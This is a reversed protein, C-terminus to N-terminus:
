EVIVKKVGSGQDNTVTLFYIGKTLNAVSIYVSTAGNETISFETIKRGVPDALSLKSIGKSEFEITFNESSPNPYIKINVENATAKNIGTIILSTLRTPLVASFNMVSPSIQSEVADISASLYAFPANWNIAIENTSYSCYSDLYAKARLTSSPYANSGCDTLSSINPGGALLGPVPEPIGDAYSQSHHINKPYLNGYGTLFSYNTANRGLLYDLSTLAANLYTTDRKLDFAEMLAVGQNAAQSNSGWNFDYVGNTGMTVGYASSSTQSRLPNAVNLIRTQITTTDAVPTLQKRYHNLTYYGLATVDAWSPIGFNGFTGAALYFSDLKTTTYLESAAWKLEDSFTGDSYSGTNITPSTLNAQVYAINPYYRAWKWASVSANICSDALGPLQTPYRSFIRAAQALTAAFDLTAATTKQIMYRPQNDASPMVTAGFNPSSLKFYVGGDCTDQMTLLWRVEYLVEDLLDPLVNASEPINTNLTDFYTSYREYLAMLTYTSIGANVVYKNYDGADYWGKSGKVISNAPHCSSAASNHILVSTDPHGEARAWIGAYPSTLAMSARQFYFGKISAKAPALHVQRRIEFPHSYGIGPVLVFFHGTSDFASFDAQRVSEGSYTWTAGSGLTGTFVTDIKNASTIYFPGAGASVAIAIKPRNPYFGLQNLHIGPPPPIIGTNSGILLSDFYVTGNFATTGANLYFTVKKIASSDVKHQGVHNANYQQYWMGTFDFIYATYTSGAAISQVVATKNTVWGSSDELDIRVKVTAASKIWVKVYPYIGLNEVAPITFTFPQYSNTTTNADVQLVQNAFTLTFVANNSWGASSNNNFDETYGTQALCLSSSILFSFLITLKKKM